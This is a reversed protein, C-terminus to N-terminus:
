DDDFIDGDYNKYLSNSQVNSGGDLYDTFPTSPGLFTKAQKIYRSETKERACKQSYAKAATILELESFGDKLRAQYKEYAAGKGEKRPYHSWFEEFHKSYRSKPTELNEAPSVCATGAPYMHTKNVEECEKIRENKIPTLQTNSDHQFRTAQLNLTTNAQEVYGQYFGWNILTVLLGTQTSEYTLFEYKKFRVLATRVNQRSVGAKDALKQYSTIFQGPQLEFRRGGWEWEKKSHSALLLVTTLIAKQESTSNTWIAKDLLERHLKIWGGINIVAQISKLCARM